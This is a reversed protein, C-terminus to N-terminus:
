TNCSDQAMVSVSPITNIECQPVRWLLLEECSDENETLVARSGFVNAEAKSRVISYKSACALNRMDPYFEFLIGYLHQPCWFAHEALAVLLDHCPQLLKPSSPLLCHRIYRMM